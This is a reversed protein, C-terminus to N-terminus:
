RENAQERSFKYGPPLPRQLDKLKELAIDRATDREIELHRQEKATIKIEDGERLGLAEVVDKPLRIALSNGWKGVNM